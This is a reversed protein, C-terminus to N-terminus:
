GNRRYGRGAAQPRQVPHPPVPDGRAPANGRDAAPRPGARSLGPGDRRRARAGPPADPAGQRRAPPRPAHRPAHDPAPCLRARREVAAGRRGAPLLDLAPPGRDGPPQRPERGRGQRRDPKGLRRDPRPLHRHRLQRARGPPRRRHAGAGHRHRHLAQAPRRRDRRRGARVAHVGPELDRHLPRRGRGAIGAPRGLHSRWPRLIDRLVPRVPWRRGDGLFQGQHRHPHDPGRAPRRDEELPRLGRRRHSLGHRPAQGQAPGM